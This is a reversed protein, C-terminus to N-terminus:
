KYGLKYLIRSCSALGERVMVCRCLKCMKRTCTDSNMGECNACGRSTDNVTSGNRLTISLNDWQPAGPNNCQYLARGLFTGSDVAYRGTITMQRFENGGSGGYAICNYFFETLNFTSGAQDNSGVTTAFNDSIMVFDPPNPCFSQQGKTLICCLSCFAFNLLFSKMVSTGAGCTIQTVRRETECSTSLIGPNSYRTAQFVIGQSIRSCMLSSM